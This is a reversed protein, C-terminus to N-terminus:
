IRMLHQCIIIWFSHSLNLLTFTFQIVTNLFSVMFNLRKSLLEKDNSSFSEGDNQGQLMHLERKSGGIRQEGQSGGPIYKIYEGGVGESQYLVSNNM